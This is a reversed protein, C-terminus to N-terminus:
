TSRDAENELRQRIRHAHLECYPGAVQNERNDMVVYVGVRGDKEVCMPLLSKLYYM